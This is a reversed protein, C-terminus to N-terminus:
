YLELGRSQIFAVMQEYYKREFCKHFDRHKLHLTLLISKAALIATSCSTMTVAM